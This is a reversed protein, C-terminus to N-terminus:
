VLERVRQGSLVRTINDSNPQGKQLAEVIKQSQEPTVRPPLPLEHPDIPAEVIVPGKRSFADDLVNVCDQASQITYGEGGCARAFAAFDIPQLECAFEPNGLFLMQEMRIMGLSNNKLVVVKVPLGYKVCTAFEAMLMSFGGDGVVAVVQRGPFAVQAAIAYTLGCAMSALSGSVSFMQEGHISIHRATWATDTGSDAVIIADDALVKSVAAVVAQPKPPTSVVSEQQGIRERWEAMAGQARTLFDRGPKRELLPILAELCRASDGVLGAEVPYRLGLRRAALDIQVCRAQGPKPYFEIYPFSTGALLLTDCEELVQQSATTGLLGVGGTTYPSDDPVVAKGLLAKIIPAGLMEAVQELEKRAGLAGRGAM